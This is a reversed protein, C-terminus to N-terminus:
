VDIGFQKLHHRFHKDLLQINMQYDLEGFFANKTKLLPNKQFVVFFYDLESQLKAIASQMDPRRLAAGTAPMMPNPTNEKFPKDSMLFSRMKELREGETLSPLLLKGSANKVADALHEVMQQANMVGWNGKKESVLQSFLPIVQEKLFIEKITAM